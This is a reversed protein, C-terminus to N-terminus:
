KAVEKQKLSNLWGELRRILEINDTENESYLGEIMEFLLKVVPGRQIRESTGNGFQKDLSEDLKKTLEKGDIEDGVALAISEVIKNKLLEKIGM